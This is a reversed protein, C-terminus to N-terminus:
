LGNVKKNYNPMSQNANLGISTIFHSLFLDGDFIDGPQAANRGCGNGAYDVVVPSKGLFGAASHFSDDFHTITKEAVNYM